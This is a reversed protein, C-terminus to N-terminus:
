PYTAKPKLTPPDPVTIFRPVLAYKFLDRGETINPISLTCGPEEDPPCDGEPEESLTRLGSELPTTAALPEAEGECVEFSVAFKVECTKEELTVECSEPDFAAKYTTLPVTVYARYKSAEVTKSELVTIPVNIQRGKGAVLEYGGQGFVGGPLGDRGPAGAAGDRGSRGAEGPRGAPGTGGIAIGDRGDRGDRGDVGGGAAGGGPTGPAGPTGPTGPTGWVITTPFTNTIFQNTSPFTFTDGTFIKNNVTSDVFALNNWINFADALQQFQRPDWQAGDYVGRASQRPSATIAIPGRHELPQNCNGLAQMLQRLANPPMVGSMANALAPMTQTLM